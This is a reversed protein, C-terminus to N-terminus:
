YVPSNDDIKSDITYNEAELTKKLTDIHFLFNDTEDGSVLSFDLAESFRPMNHLFHLATGGIFAWSVFAGSEQLADLIRAQLYERVILRSKSPDRLSKLLGRIYEKM